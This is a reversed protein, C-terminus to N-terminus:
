GHDVRGGASTTSVTVSRGDETVDSRVLGGLEGFRLGGWAAMLLMAKRRDPAADVLAALQDVGLLPREQSREQGAGRIDAPNRAIIEDRVADALCARLLRFSSRRADGM